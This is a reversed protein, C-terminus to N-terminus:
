RRILVCVDRPIHGLYYRPSILAHPKVPIPHHYLSISGVSDYPPLGLRDIRSCLLDVKHQIDVVRLFGGDIREFVRRAPLDATAIPIHVTKPQPVSRDIVGVQVTVQFLVDEGFASEPIRDRVADFGKSGVWGTNTNKQSSYCFT